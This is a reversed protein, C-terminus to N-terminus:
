SLIIKELTAYKKEKDEKDARLKVVATVSVGKAAQVIEGLKTSNNALPKFTGLVRKAYGIGYPNDLMAISNFVLGSEPKQENGAVEITDVVQCQIELAPHDGVEKLELSITLVYVGAPPTGIEIGELTDLDQELFADLM